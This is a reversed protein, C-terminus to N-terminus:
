DRRLGSMRIAACAAGFGNDINVVTLGSACSGLMGALAAYGGGSVGYGVSTPVAIVPCKVLGGIVSPLAGEMGAIAIIVDADMLEDLRALLRHLGAVGVDCLLRSAIGALELTNGAELAVGMDSTGATVIAVTFGPVPQIHDKRMLCRSVPCYTLEPHHELVEAAKEPSTRTCLLPQPRLKMEDLIGILQGSTKGEGYIVEPFGCRAHRQHDIRAYGLDGIGKELLAAIKKFEDKM